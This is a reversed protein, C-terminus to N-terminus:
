IYLEDESRKSPNSLIYSRINDFDAQWRIIIDHYSRQRCIYLNQQNCLKTVSAKLNWIVSWLTQNSYIVNESVAFLIHIHNPMIVYDYIMMNPRISQTFKIQLDVIKWIQSLIISPYMSIHYDSKMPDFEDISTFSKSIIEGFYNVRNQTCITVFYVGDGGYDYKDRRLKKRNPLDNMIYIKIYFLINQM